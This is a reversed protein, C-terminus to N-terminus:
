MAKLATTIPLRLCHISPPLAGLLGLLAAATLGATLVLSDVRLGVAGLAFQVALGDLVLVGLGAALLGGALTALLAEQILSLLIARRPFGQTQLTAFERTRAVFAAYLTNLGGFLAGLGILGATALAMFQVPRYFAAVQAYYDRESMATIQLDLRQAALLQVDELEATDLTLVVCSVGDRRTAIRLDSLPAWVESDVVSGPSALIGTITWARGDFYLTRGLAADGQPLRLRRLAHRGVAIEDRAEAPWRGHILRVQGHVLTAAPTVGRLTIALPQGDDPAHHLRAQLHIEPSVHEVGATRRIGRVSSAIVGGIGAELESREISEESGAALILVNDASGSTRLSAHMGRVFGAAALVLLAVLASGGIMLSLRLPSRGMNRVAYEWPLWRMATMKRESKM